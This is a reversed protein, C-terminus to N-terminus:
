YEYLHRAQQGLDVSDLTEEALALVPIQAQHVFRRTLSRDLLIDLAAKHHSIM